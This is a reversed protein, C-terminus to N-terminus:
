QSCCILMKLYIMSEEVPFDCAGM